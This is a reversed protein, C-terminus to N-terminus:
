HHKNLLFLRRKSNICLECGVGNGRHYCSSCPEAEFQITSHCILYEDMLIKQIKELIEASEEISINGICVHASMAIKESSLSWVHVDNVEKIEEIEKMREVMKNVDIHPPVGELLINIIEVLMDWATKLIALGILASILTDAPYYHTFYIVLGGVLVGLSALADGVFHLWASKININEKGEQLIWIILANCLLGVLSLILMGGIEVTQPHLLRLYAQYFIYFSIVILTLNNVLAALIGFRHFGFTHKATASKQSQWLAAWSLILAFFDTLYHWADSILALSNTWYGGILKVIFVLFTVGVALGLKKQNDKLM